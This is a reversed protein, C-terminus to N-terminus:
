RDGPVPAPMAAVRPRVASAAPVAPVPADPGGELLERAATLVAEPEVRRLCDHHGAPCASAYCWRCPVDHFLVRSPVRWPTHQPNTLAYPVAVPTGVAAAVHVPGTNNSVLLAAARLLAALEAVSSRGMWPRVGPGAALAVGEALAREEETGTVLVPLGLGALGAAVAAFREAPYRRSPASAGPHVVVFPGEMGLARLRRGVARRAPPPIALSLREDATVAGVSAVLDLQRRVEHRVLRDPEPEPVHDTLLHYPQERCHALRLPIGALHCLLAAPLPSQSYATFIAAADFREARLRGIMARDPGPGRGGPTAKMWPAEHVIVDDVEPVLEAVRAGAPSTLLTVHRGPASTRLARIAPTTMLVDGMADLRVCLIRRARRWADGM